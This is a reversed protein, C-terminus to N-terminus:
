LHNEYIAFTIIKNIDLYNSTKKKCNNLSIEINNLIKAWQIHFCFSFINTFQYSKADYTTNSNDYLIHYIRDYDLEKRM